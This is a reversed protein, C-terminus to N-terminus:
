TQRGGTKEWWSIRARGDEEISVTISTGKRRRIMAIPIFVPLMFVYTYVDTRINSNKKARYIEFM